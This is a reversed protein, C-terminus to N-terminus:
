CGFETCAFLVFCLEVCQLEGSNIDGNLWDTEEWGKYLEKSQMISRSLALTKSHNELCVGALVGCLKSFFWKWAVTLAVQLASWCFTFIFDTILLMLPFTITTQKISAEECRRYVSKWSSERRSKNSFTLLCIDTYGSLLEQLLRPHCKIKM